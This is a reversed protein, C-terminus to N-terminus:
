GDVRQRPGEAPGRAVQRLAALVRAEAESLPGDVTCGSAQPHGGGGLALAVGSVDYGPRARLSVEVRGDTKESFVASISAEPANLLFSVLGGDSGNPAGVRARMAQTVRTWIVLGDVQVADLAPGWLRIVGLPRYDLTREAIAALDAGREMLRMATNMVDLTVNSTRFGRTDTVLGTLLCTAAEPPLHVPASPMAAQLADVLNVVIQATAAASPDVWNFAGFRMNTIHHDLNLIPACTPLGAPIAQGLRRIDSSDMAVILDWPGAPPTTLIQDAGPLFALEPPM